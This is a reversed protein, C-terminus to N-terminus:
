REAFQAEIRVKYWNLIVFEFTRYCYWTTECAMWLSDSAVNNLRLITKSIQSLKLKLKVEHLIIMYYYHSSFFFTSSIFFDIHSRNPSSNFQKTTLFFVEVVDASNEMAFFKKITCSRAGSSTEKLSRRKNSSDSISRIRRDSGDITETIHGLNCYRQKYSDNALWVFDSETLNENATSRWNEWSEINAVM